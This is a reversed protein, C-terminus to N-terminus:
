TGNNTNFSCSSILLLIDVSITIFAYFYLLNSKHSFFQINKSALYNSYKFFRKFLNFHDKVIMLYEFANSPYVHTCFSYFLLFPQKLLDPKPGFTDWPQDKTSYHMGVPTIAM